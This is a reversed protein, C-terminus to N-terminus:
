ANNEIVVHNWATKFKRDWNDTFVPLYANLAHAIDHAHDMQNTDFALQLEELMFSITNINSFSEELQHMIVWTDPNTPTSYM